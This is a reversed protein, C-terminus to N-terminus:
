LVLVINSVGHSALMVAANVQLWYKWLKRPLERKSQLQNSLSSFMIGLGESAVEVPDGYQPEELATGLANAAEQMTVSLPVKDPLDTLQQLAGPTLLPCSVSINSLASAQQTPQTATVTSSMIGQVAQQAAAADFRQSQQEYDSNLDHEHWCAGDCASLAANQVHSNPTLSSQEDSNQGPKWAHDLARQLSREGAYCLAADPELFSDAGHLPTSCSSSEAAPCLQCASDTPDHGTDVECDFRLHTGQPEPITSMLGSSEPRAPLASQAVAQGGTLSPMVSTTAADAAPAALRSQEDAEAQPLRSPDIEHSLAASTGNHQFQAEAACSTSSDTAANQISWSLWEPPM